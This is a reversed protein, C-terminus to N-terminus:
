PFLNYSVLLSCGLFTEPCVSFVEILIELLGYRSDFYASQVYNKLAVSEVNKM